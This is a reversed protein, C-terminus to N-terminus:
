DLTGLAAWDASQGGTSSTHADWGINDWGINDWGINDWGINDWGINDWNINDWTIRDWGINDWGINVWDLGMYHPDRWLNTTSTGYLLPYVALAFDDSPTLGRNASAMATNNVAGYADVLGAGKANVDLVSEAPRATVKLSNKVQNPTLAPNKQLMLAVTGAVVPSSMSTGTLRFYSNGTRRDPLANDLFSSVSRLSVIKRGPAVLDPKVVGDPTPGRSSFWPITDDLTTLTGNDDLAGVAIGYPDTAPTVISGATPGSNGAAMVVVIGSHWAIEVAAVMPDTRYSSTAQGGLSMNIVRINYTRRNVVAWEIGRIVTSVNTTGERGIVRVNVINAGPAIGMWGQASDSGNGAVIGAVHTGHGGPDGSGPTATLDVSGIVRSNPLVLDNASAVGSDIVAVGIGQGTIGQAWVEPARVLQTYISQAAPTGMPKLKKDLVIFKVFPDRSLKTIGDVNMTAAAGGILALGKLYKGGNAKLRDAAGKAREANVKPSPKKGGGPVGTQVIVDFEGRPNANMAALLAPDIKSSVPGDANAPQALPFSASFLLLLALVVFVVRFTLHKM